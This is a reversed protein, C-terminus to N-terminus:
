HTDFPTPSLDAPQELNPPQRAPPSKTMHPSAGEIKTIGKLHTSMKPHAAPPPAIPVIDEVPHSEGGAEVRALRSLTGSQDQEQQQQDIHSLIGEQILVLNPHASASTALPPKIITTFLGITTSPTSQITEIYTITVNTTEAHEITAVEIHELNIVPSTNVLGIRQRKQEEAKEEDLIMERGHPGKYIKVSPNVWNLPERAIISAVWVRWDNINTRIKQKYEYFVEHLRERYHENIENPGCPIDIGWVKVVDLLGHMLEKKKKWGNRSIRKEEIITHDRKLLFKELSWAVIFHQQRKLRLEENSKALATPSHALGVEKEFQSTSLNISGSYNSDSCQPATSTKRKERM